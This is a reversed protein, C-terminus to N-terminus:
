DFLSPQKPLERTNWAVIAGERTTSSPGVAACQCSVFWGWRNSNKITQSRHGCFPCPKLDKM